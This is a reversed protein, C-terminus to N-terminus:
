KLNIHFFGAAQMDYAKLIEGSMAHTRATRFSIMEKQPQIKKYIATTLDALGPRDEGKIFLIAKGSLATLPLAENLSAQDFLHVLRFAQRCGFLM